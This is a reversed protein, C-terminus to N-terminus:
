RYAPLAPPRPDTFCQTHPLLPVPPNDRVFLVSAQYAGLNDLNHPRRALTTPVHNVVSKTIAPVDPSHAPHSPLLSSPTLAPSAVLPPTRCRHPLAPPMSPPTSACLIQIYVRAARPSNSSMPVRPERVDITDELSAALFTPAALTRTAFSDVM